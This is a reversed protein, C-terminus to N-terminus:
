VAATGIISGYFPIGSEIPGNYTTILVVDMATQATKFTVFSDIAVNAFMDGPLNGAQALQSVNGITIDNITWATAGGGGLGVGFASVFVREPRFAVRQPRSTIQTSFGPPINQTGSGMPLVERNAFGPQRQEVLVARPQMGYQMAAQAMPNIGYPAQAFHGGGGHGHHGGHGRAGHPDGYPGHGIAGPGPGGMPAGVVSHWAGIISQWDAGALPQPAYGQPAYGVPPGYGYGNGVLPYGGNGVLPYAQQGYM